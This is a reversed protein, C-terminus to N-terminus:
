TWGNFVTQGRNLTLVVKKGPLFVCVLKRDKDM